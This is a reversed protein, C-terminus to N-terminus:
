FHVYFLINSVGNGLDQEKRTVNERACILNRSEQFIKELGWIM